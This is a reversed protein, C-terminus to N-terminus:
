CISCAISDKLNRKKKQVVANTFLLARLEQYGDISNINEDRQSGIIEWMSKKFSRSLYYTNMEGKGKIQTKGRGEFEFRGTRQACTVAHESCHIRGEPSHSEMRSATNVTDGFLCYRPMKAGVVGAVVPGSHIGARIQLPRGSIPDTANRAEYVMGLALHCIIECHDETQDPIGGVSM